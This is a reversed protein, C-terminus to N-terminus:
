APPIFTPCFCTCANKKSGKEFKLHFNKTLIYLFLYVFLQKKSQYPESKWFIKRPDGMPETIKGIYENDNIAEFRIEPYLKTNKRRISYLGWQREMAFLLLRNTNPNITKKLYISNDELVKFYKLLISFLLGYAKDHLANSKIFYRRWPVDRDYERDLLVSNHLFPILAHFLRDKEISEYIGNNLLINAIDRIIIENSQLGYKDIFYEVRNLLIADKPIIFSPMPVREFDECMSLLSHAINLEKAAVLSKMGLSNRIMSITVFVPIGM